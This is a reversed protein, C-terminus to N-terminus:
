EENLVDELARWYINEDRNTSTVRSDDRKLIFEYHVDPGAKACWGKIMAEMANLDETPTARVDVDAFCM